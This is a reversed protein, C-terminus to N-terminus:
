PQAVRVAEVSQDGVWGTHGDSTRVFDFGGYRDQLWVVEGERLAGSAAASAAPALQLTVPTQVVARSLDSWCLVAADASACLTLVAVLILLRGIRRATRQLCLMVLAACLVWVAGLAAWLYTDFSFYHAAAQWPGLVEPTLGARQQAAALNAEISASRPELVLAREYALIAPGPKGLRLWANGLNFLLPASFGGARLLQQYSQIAAQYDGSAAAHEAQAVSPQEARAGFTALLLFLATFRLARM